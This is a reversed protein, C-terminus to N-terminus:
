IYSEHFVNQIVIFEMKHFCTIILLTIFDHSEYFCAHLLHILNIADYSMTCQYIRSLPWLSVIYTLEITLHTHKYAEKIWHNNTVLTAM